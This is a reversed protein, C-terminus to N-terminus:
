SPRSSPRSISRTHTAMSSNSSRRGARRPPCAPSLARRRARRAPDGRRIARRRPHRRTRRRRGTAAALRFGDYIVRKSPPSQPGDAGPTLPGKWGFLAKEFSSRHDFPLIYLPQDYGIDMRVESTEPARTARPLPPDARQDLQRAQADPGGREGARSHHAQALVKGLEVGWQDFSDINWIAGQTFM